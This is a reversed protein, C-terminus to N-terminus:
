TSTELFRQTSIVALLDNLSSRPTRNATNVQAEARDYLPTRAQLLERLQAMAGPNGRMPRHDGQARVRQM